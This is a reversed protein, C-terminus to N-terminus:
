FFWLKLVQLELVEPKRKKLNVYFYQNESLISM